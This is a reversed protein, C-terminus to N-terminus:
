TQRPAERASKHSTWALHLLASSGGAPLFLLCGLCILNGFWLVFGQILDAWIVAESGGILTYCVTIAGVPIIVRDTNWGTMSTVTLALLYFVFGWRPFTAWRFLSRVM